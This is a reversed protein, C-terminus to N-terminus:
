KVHYYGKEIMWAHYRDLEESLTERWLTPGFEDMYSYYKEQSM